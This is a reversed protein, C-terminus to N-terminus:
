TMEDVGLAPQDVMLDIAPDAGIRQLLQRVDRGDDQNRSAIFFNGDHPRREGVGLYRNQDGVLVRGLAQEIASRASRRSAHTSTVHRRISTATSRRAPATVPSWRTSRTSM